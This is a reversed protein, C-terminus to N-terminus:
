TRSECHQCSQRPLVRHTKTRPLICVHDHFIILVASVDGFPARVALIFDFHRPIYLCAAVFCVAGHASTPQHETIGALIPLADHLSLPYTQTPPPPPLFFLLPSLLAASPVYHFITPSCPLRTP